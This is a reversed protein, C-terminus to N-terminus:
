EPKELAAAAEEFKWESRNIHSFLNLMGGNGWIARRGRSVAPLSIRDGGGGGIIKM